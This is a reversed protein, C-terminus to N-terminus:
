GYVREIFPFAEAMTTVPFVEFELWPAYRLLNEKVAEPDDPM